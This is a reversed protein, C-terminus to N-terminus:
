VRELIYKKFRAAEGYRNKSSLWEDDIQLGEQRLLLIMQSLRTIGYDQIAEWTTISGCDQLHRLVRDKQTM